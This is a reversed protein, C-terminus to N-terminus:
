PPVDFFFMDEDSGYKLKRFEILGLLFSDRRKKIRIAAEFTIFIGMDIGISARITSSAAAAVPGFRYM